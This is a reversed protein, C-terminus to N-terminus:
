RPQLHRHRSRRRRRRLPIRAAAVTERRRRPSVSCYLAPLSSTEDLLLVQLNAHKKEKQPPFFSFFVLVTRRAQVAITWWIRASTCQGRWGRAHKFAVLVCFHVGGEKWESRLKEKALFHPFLTADEVRRKILKERYLRGREFVRVVDILLPTKCTTPAGCQILAICDVKTHPAGCRLPTEAM